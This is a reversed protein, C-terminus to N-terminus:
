TTTCICSDAAANSCDVLATTTIDYGFLCGKSAGCTTTCAQDGAAAARFGADTVAADLTGDANITWKNSGATDFKITAATGTGAEITVGGGVGAGGVDDGQLVISAARTTGLAGAAYIEIKGWDSGDVTDTRLTALPPFASSGAAGAITIDGGRNTNFADQGEMYIYAGRTGSLTSSGGATIQVISMDSGDARDTRFTTTVDTGFSDSALILDNIATSTNDSIEFRTKGRTSFSVIGNDAAGQIYAGGQASAVVASEAGFLLIRAGRSPTIAGGPALFIAGYDAGDVTDNRLTIVPADSTSAGVGGGVVNINGGSNVGGVDQGELQIYAGRNGALTSSGGGTLNLVGDDFGDAKDSRITLTPSSDSSLGYVLDAAPTSSLPISLHQAGGTSFYMGGDGAATGASLYLRGPFGSENGYLRIYAGRPSAIAGGGTLQLLGDDAADAKNSRITLSPDTDTSLGFALTAAVNASYPIELRQVGGTNFYIGGDTADNGAELLLKGNAANENGYLNIYAGRASSATGGSTLQMQKSDVGDITDAKISFPTITYKLDRTVATDVPTIVQASSNLTFLLLSAYILYQITRMNASVM